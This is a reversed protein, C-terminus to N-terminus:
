AIFVLTNIDLDDRKLYQREILTDISEKINGISPYFRIKTKEIVLNVLLAHNIQKKEKLIKTILAMLYYKRDQKVQDNVLEDENTNSPLQFPIRIIYKKPKFGMNIAYKDENKLILGLGILAELYLNDKNIEENELIQQMLLWCPVPCDMEFGNEINIKLVIRSWHHAWKLRRGVHQQNYFSEFSTLNNILPEPLGKVADEEETVPWSGTTLVLVNFNKIESNKTLDISLDCDTMMKQLKFTYEQGNIRAFDNILRKELEKKNNPMLLRKTLLRSYYLLFLDKDTIYKFFDVANTLLADEPSKKLLFDFYKSVYTAIPIPLLNANLFLVFGHDIAAICENDNEFANEVFKLFNIKIKSLSTMLTTPKKLLSDSMKNIVQVGSANVQDCIVQKILSIGNNLRKLLLYAFNANPVNFHSICKPLFVLIDSKLLDIIHTNICLQIKHFSPAILLATALQDEYKIFELSNAMKLSIEQNKLENYKFSYYIAADQLFLDEFNVNYYFYISPTQLGIDRFSSICISCKIANPSALSSMNIRLKNIEKILLNTFQHNANLKQLVNFEWLQLGLGFINMRPYGCLKPSTLQDQNDYDQDTYFDNSKTILKNLNLCCKDFVKIAHFYNSWFDSYTLLDVDYQELTYLTMSCFQNLTKAIEIFLVETKDQVICDFVKKHIKMFYPREKSKELISKLHSICDTVAYDM